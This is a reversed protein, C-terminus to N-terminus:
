NESTTGLHQPSQVVDRTIPLSNESNKNESQQGDTSMQSEEKVNSGDAISGNPIDSGETVSPM